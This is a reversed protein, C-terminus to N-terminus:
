DIKGSFANFGHIKRVAVFFMFIKLISVAGFVIAVGLGGSVSAAFPTAFASLVTTIIGIMLNLRAHGSMVLIQGVIGLSALALQGIVLARIINAGSIFESGFLALLPEAAVFIIAALPTFIILSLWTATRSLRAMEAREGTHAAAAIPTAFTALLSLSVIPLVSTIQFAIRFIGTESAGAWQNLCILAYWDSFNQTIAIGWMPLATMFLTKQKIELASPKTSSARMVLTMGFALVGFGSAISAYLISEIHKSTAGQAALLLITFIPLLLQDVAQSLSFSLQSRLIAAIVRLLARQLILTGLIVGAWAVPKNGLIWPIVIPELAVITIGLAAAMATTQALTATVSRRALPIKLAVGRSFERVVALDLGGVALVSFFMASQM